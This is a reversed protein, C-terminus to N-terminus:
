KDRVAELAARAAAHAPNIGLTRNFEAIAEAKRGSAALATGLNFHADAYNADLRLAEQCHAIAESTRGLRQLDFCLNGQTKPDISGLRLAELFHRSSEEYNGQAAWYIGLDEHASMLEPQVQLAATLHTFAEQLEGRKMLERGLNAQANAADPEVAIAQRYLAIAESSRGENGLITALNNEIVSNRQTVALTHEFLTEGSSWYAVQRYSTVALALLLAVALAAASGALRPRGEIAEAVAWVLAVSIGILPVYTYRDAMAQSGVQVLGIVPVLTGLYWLWGVTVYPRRRVSLAAVATAAALLALAIIVTGSSWGHYPYVLGLNVPVIAKGIYAVYAVAANAARASLPIRSLSVVAIKRQALFTLVSAGAALAFWPAKEWALRRATAPEPPWTMRRLPWFDLLLLVFPFTVAMPKAMLSAAFLLTTQVYRQRSPAECYRIYFVLALMEFFTNLVDKREAIWAVSEVHLPHLAFIGAVLASRWPRGTM